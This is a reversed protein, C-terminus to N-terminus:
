AHLHGRLQGLHPRGRAQAQIGLCPGPQRLLRLWRPVLHDFSPTTGRKRGSFHISVQNVTDLWLIHDIEYEAVLDRMAQFNKNPTVGSIRVLRSAGGQVIKEQMENDIRDTGDPKEISILHHGDDGVHIGASHNDFYKACTKDDYFQVMFETETVKWARDVPGGYALCLIDSLTMWEPVNKFLIRRYPVVIRIANAAAKAAQLARFHDM